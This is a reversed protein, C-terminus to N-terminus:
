AKGLRLLIREALDRRLRLLRSEVAKESLGSSTALEAVSAGRFYKEELLGRDKPDLEHLVSDLHDRWEESTRAGPVEVTGQLYRHLLGSYRRDKRANDRAANRAVIKLWGWFIEESDFRRAHKAIKLLTHQLAEQASHADGRTVLLLFRYLPDFYLRHFERFSEENGVALGRILAIIFGPSEDKARTLPM